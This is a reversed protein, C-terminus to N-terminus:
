VFRERDHVGKVLNAALDPQLVRGLRRLNVWVRHCVSSMPEPRIVPLGNTALALRSPRPEGATRSWVRDHGGDFWVGTADM